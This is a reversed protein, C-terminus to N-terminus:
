KAPSSNVLKSKKAFWEGKALGFKSNDGEGAVIYGATTEALLPRTINHIGERHITINIPTGPPLFSVNLKTNM